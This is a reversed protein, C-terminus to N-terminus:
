IGRIKKNIIKETQHIAQDAISHQQRYITHMNEDYLHIDVWLKQKPQKQKM